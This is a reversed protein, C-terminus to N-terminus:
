MLQLAVAASSRNPVSWMRASCYNVLSCASYVRRCAIQMCCIGSSGPFSQRGEVQPHPPVVRPRVQACSADTAVGRAPDNCSISHATLWASMADENQQENFLLSSQEGAKRRDTRLCFAIAICICLDVICVKGWSLNHQVVHV